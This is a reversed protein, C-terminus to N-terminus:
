LVVDVQVCLAAVKRYNEGSLKFSSHVYTICLKSLLTSVPQPTQRFGWAVPEYQSYLMKENRFATIEGTLEILTLKIDNIHILILFFVAAASCTRSEFPVEPSLSIEWITQLNHLLFYIRDLLLLSLKWLCMVAIEQVTFLGIINVERGRWTRWIFCKQLILLTVIEVTGLVAETM